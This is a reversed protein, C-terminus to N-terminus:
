EFQRRFYEIAAQEPMTDGGDHILYEFRDAHGLAEYQATYLDRYHTPGQAHSDADKRGHGALMPRPCYALSLIHRDCLALTGPLIHCLDPMGKFDDISMGPPVTLTKRGFDAVAGIRDTLLATQVSLWGGLSVGTAGIRTEDVGLHGALIESAALCAMLQHARVLEGRLLGFSAVEKEDVGVKGDRSLYGTDIKEVAITIFGAQALRVAVGRQYSELDLVLDRLGHRSHGSYVCIGPRVSGENPLCVVTPVVLGSEPFEVAHVEMEIGHCHISKLVRDRYRGALKNTKGKPDRVIWDGLGLTETLSAVVEKQFAAYARAKMPFDEDTYKCDSLHSAVLSEVTPSLEPELIPALPDHFREEAHAPAVSLLCVAALAIATCIAIV